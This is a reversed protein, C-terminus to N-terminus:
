AGQQEDTLVIKIRSKQPHACLSYAAQADEIPFTHTIFDAFDARHEVLYDRGAGLVEVWNDLTRGSSLTIGREYMERYPIVYEDDDAAGFGLVFGWTAVAHIADRVTSQQHGAADIVIDPRDRSALSRVWQASQTPVYEDAGYGLAIERRPVPDILTIHGASRHRLVHAFTLGIPGAGIIAVKKGKVEPLRNAARLVTSISQVLVSEAHSFGPPIPIFNRDSEVLIEALGAAAGGTGVVQDGVVLRDSATEIVEGVIEHIPAGDHNGNVSFIPMGRLQPMDSGCLGAARFRLRVQGPGLPVTEAVSILQKVVEPGDLAFVWSM